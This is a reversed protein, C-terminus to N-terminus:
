MVISVPKRHSDLLQKACASLDDCNKLIKEWDVENM